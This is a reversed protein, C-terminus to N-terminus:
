ASAALQQLAHDVLEPRHETRAVRVRENDLAVERHDVDAQLAEVLAQVQQGAVDLGAAEDETVCM